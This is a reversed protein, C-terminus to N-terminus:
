STAKHFPGHSHVQFCIKQPRDAAVHILKATSGELDFRSMVGAGSSIKITVKQLGKALLM